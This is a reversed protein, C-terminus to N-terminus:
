LEREYNFFRLEMSAELDELRSMAKIFLASAIHIVSKTSNKTGLFGFRLEQSLILESAIGILVFIFRYTLIFLETFASPIRVWNMWKILGQLPISLSLCMVLFISASARILTQLAIRYSEETIGIWLSGIKVKLIPKLFPESSTVALLVICTFFIFGLPIGIIKLYHKVKLRTLYLTLSISIASSLVFLSTQNLVLMLVLWSLMISVRLLIYKENLRSQYAIADIHIM